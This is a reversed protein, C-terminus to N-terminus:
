WGRSARYSVERISSQIGANTQVLYRGSKPPYKTGLAWRHRGGPFKRWSTTVSALLRTWQNALPIRRWPEPITVTAVRHLISERALGSKEDSNIVTTDRHRRVAGDLVSRRAWNEGASDSIPSSTRNMSWPISPQSIVQIGAPWPRSLGYIM